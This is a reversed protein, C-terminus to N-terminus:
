APVTVCAREDQATELVARLRVRGRHLLVRQNEESLALAACVEAATMSEVDRLIVVLRQQEPLDELAHALMAVLERNAVANEPSADLHWARPPDKWGGWWNFRAALQEEDEGDALPRARADRAGRTRARNVAIQLIWTDLASRGAFGDLGQLVAQWTDQAVDEAAADSAVFRRCLRVLRPHLREVLASFVTEDGRLLAAVLARDPDLQAASM